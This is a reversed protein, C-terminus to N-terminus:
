ATRRKRLWLGGLGLLAITMPEPVIEIDLTGATCAVSGGFLDFTKLNDLSITYLGAQTGLVLEFEHVVGNPVDDSGDFATASAAGSITTVLTGAVASYTGALAIQDFNPHLAADADHLPAGKDIADGVDSGSVLTSKVNDITMQGLEGAGIQGQAFGSAVLEITIQEGGAYIAVDAPNVQISISAASAASVLGLSLMLVVLKKMTVGKVNM